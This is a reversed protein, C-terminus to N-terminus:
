GGSQWIRIADIPWLLMLINLSLNDRIAVVMLLEFMIFVVISWRWGISRAVAFGIVCFLLDGAANVLSDGTYGNAATAERYRDIVIPSNEFIEWVAEVALSVVLRWRVALKPFSVTLISYFVLGHLFHSFSYWDILHQSNHMSAVEGAFLTPTGCACYWVRGLLRMAVGVILAIAVASAVALWSSLNQPKATLSHM